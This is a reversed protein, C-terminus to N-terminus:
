ESFTNFIGLVVDDTFLHFLFIFAIISVGPASFPNFTLRGIFVAVEKVVVFGAQLSCRGVLSCIVLLLVGTQELERVIAGLAM